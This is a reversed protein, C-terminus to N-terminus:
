LAIEDCGLASRSNFHRGSLAVPVGSGTEVAEVMVVLAPKNHASAILQAALLHIDTGSAAFVCEMGDLDSLGCLEILESRVRNLENTYVNAHSQLNTALMLRNRLTDAAAFGADSIVSATSSGFALLENDPKPPFGFKNNGSQYDLSIRTDGGQILLEATTPFSLNNQTGAPRPSTIGITM